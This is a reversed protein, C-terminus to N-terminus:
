ISALNGSERSVTAWSRFPSQRSWPAPRTFTLTQLGTGTYDTGSTASSGDVTHYQVTLNTLPASSLRVTVFAQPTPGTGTEYATSDEVTIEPGLADAWFQNLTSTQSVVGDSKDLVQYTNSDMLVLSNPGVAGSPDAPSNPGSASTDLTTNTLSNAQQFQM